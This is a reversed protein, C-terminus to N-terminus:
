APNKLYTTLEVGDVFGDGNDNEGIRNDEQSYEVHSLVTRTEVTGQEALQQMYHIYNDIRAFVVNDAVVQTGQQVMGSTELVKLDFLYMDKDHDIMLFDIKPLEKEKQLNVRLLDAISETTGDMHLDILLVSIIDQLNAMQIMERAIAAHNPNIEVTYLHCDMKRGGENIASLMTQALLISGYGCYTGLEVAIFSRSAGAIAEQISERLFDTLIAGKEPGVHMMWHRASCFDDIVNLVDQSSSDNPIANRVHTLLSSETNAHFSLVGCEEDRGVPSQEADDHEDDESDFCAFPDEDDGASNSAM